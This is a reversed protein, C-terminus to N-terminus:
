TSPPSKPLRSALMFLSTRCIFQHEPRLTVTPHSKARWTDSEYFMHAKPREDDWKVSKHHM